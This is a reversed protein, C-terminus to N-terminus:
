PVRPLVVHRYRRTVSPIPNHAVTCFSERGCPRKACDCGRRENEVKGLEFAIDLPHRVTAAAEADAQTRVHLRRLGQGNGRPKGRGSCEAEGHGRQLLRFIERRGAVAVDEVGNRDIRVFGRAGCLKRFRADVDRQERIREGGCVGSRRGGFGAFGNKRHPDFEVDVVVAGADFAGIGIEFRQRSKQGRVGPHAEGPEHGVAARGVVACAYTRGGRQCFPM